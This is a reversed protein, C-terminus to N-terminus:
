AQTWTTSILPRSIVQPKTPKGCRVCTKKAGNHFYPSTFKVNRLGQANDNGVLGPSCALALDFVRPTLDTPSTPILLEGSAIAGAITGIAMEDLNAPLAQGSQLLLIAEKRLQGPPLPPVPETVQVEPWAGSGTGDLLRLMNVDPVTVQNLPAVEQAHGGAAGLVDLLTLFHEISVGSSSTGIKIAPLAQFRQQFAPCVERSRQM